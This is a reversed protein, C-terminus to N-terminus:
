PNKDGRSIFAFFILMMVCAVTLGVGFEIILIGYHQGHLPDDVLVNYDLFNGGKFM